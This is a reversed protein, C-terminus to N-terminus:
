KSATWGAIWSITGTATAPSSPCKVADGTYVTLSPPTGANANSANQWRYINTDTSTTAYTFTGSTHITGISYATGGSEVAWSFFVNASPKLTLSPVPSTGPIVVSGDAGRDLWAATGASAFAASSVGLTLIAALALIRFRM